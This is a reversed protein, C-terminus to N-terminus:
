YKTNIIIESTVINKGPLTYRMVIPYAGKTTAPLNDQMMFLKVGESRDADNVLTNSVVTRAHTFDEDIFHQMENNLASFKNLLLRGNTEKETNTL